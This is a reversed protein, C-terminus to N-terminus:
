SRTSKRLDKIFTWWPSKAPAKPDTVVLKSGAYQMGLGQKLWAWRGPHPRLVVRPDRKDEIVQMHSMAYEALDRGVAQRAIRQEIAPDNVRRFRACWAAIVEQLQEREPKRAFEEEQQREIDDPNWGRIRGRDPTARRVAPPAASATTPRKKTVVIPPQRRQKM